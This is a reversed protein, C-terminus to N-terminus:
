TFTWLRSWVLRGCDVCGTALLAVAFFWRLRAGVQREWCAVRRVLDKVSQLPGQVEGACAECCRLHGRRVLRWVGVMVMMMMMEVLCRM